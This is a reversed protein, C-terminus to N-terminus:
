IVMLDGRTHSGEWFTPFRKSLQSSTLPETILIKLMTEYLNDASVPNCKRPKPRDIQGCQM